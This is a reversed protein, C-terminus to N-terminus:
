FSPPVWCTGWLFKDGPAQLKQTTKGHSQYRAAIGALGSSCLSVAGRGEGPRAGALLLPAETQLGGRGLGKKEKLDAPTSSHRIALLGESGGFEWPSHLENPAQGAGVARPIFIFYFLIFPHFHGKLTYHAWYSLGPTQLIPFTHSPQSPSLPCSQPKLSLLQIMNLKSNIFCPGNLCDLPYQAKLLSFPFSHHHCLLLIPLVM